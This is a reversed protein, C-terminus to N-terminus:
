ARSFRFIAAALSFGADIGTRAFQKAYAPMGSCTHIHTYIHTRTYTHAHTHGYAQRNTRTHTNRRM